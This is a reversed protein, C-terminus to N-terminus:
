PDWIGGIQKVQRHIELESPAVRISVVADAQQVKEKPKWDYEKIILGVTKFRRQLQEGFRHRVCFWSSAISNILSSLM